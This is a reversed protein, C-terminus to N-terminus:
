MESEIEMGGVRGDGGQLLALKVVSVGVECRRVVMRKSRSTAHEREKKGLARGDELCTRKLWDAMELEKRVCV